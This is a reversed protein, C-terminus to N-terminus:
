RLCGGAVLVAGRPDLAISDVAREDLELTRELKGSPVKWILVGSTAGTALYSDGAFFTLGHVPNGISDNIEPHRLVTPPGAELEDAAIARMAAAVLVVGIAALWISRRQM